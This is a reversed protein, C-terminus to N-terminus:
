ENDTEGEELGLMMVLDDYTLNSIKIFQGNYYIIVWWFNPNTSQKTIELVDGFKISKLNLNKIDKLEKM